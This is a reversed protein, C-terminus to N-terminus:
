QKCEYLYGALNPHYRRRLKGLPIVPAPDLRNWRRRLRAVAQARAKMVRRFRDQDWDARAERLEHDLRMLLQLAQATLLREGTLVFRSTWRTIEADLYCCVMNAEFRSSTETVAQDINSQVSSM